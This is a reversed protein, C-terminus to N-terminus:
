KVILVPIPSHQAVATSVSGLFFETIGSLGRCGIVVSDFQRERIANLIRGAPNGFELITEVKGSYNTLRAQAMELLSSGVKEIEAIDQPVYPVDGNMSITLVPKVVHIVTITGAFKEGLTKAYELANWATESGDVPVLISRFM